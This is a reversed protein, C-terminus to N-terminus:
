IRGESLVLDLISNALATEFLNYASLMLFLRDMHM